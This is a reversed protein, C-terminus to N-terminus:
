HARHQRMQEFISPKPTVELLDQIEEKQYELRQVIEPRCHSCCPFTVPNDSTDRITVSDETYRETCVPCLVNPM